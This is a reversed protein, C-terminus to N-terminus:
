HLTAPIVLGFAGELSADDEDSDQVWSVFEEATFLGHITATGEADLDCVAVWGSAEVAGGLIQKRGELVLQALVAHEIARRTEATLSVQRLRALSHWIIRQVTVSNKAASEGEAANWEAESVLALVQVVGHKDPQVVAVMGAARAVAYGHRTLAEWDDAAELAATEVQGRAEISLRSVAENAPSLFRIRSM